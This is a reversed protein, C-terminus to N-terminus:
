GFYGRVTAYVGVAACAVPIITILVVTDLLELFRGVYPSAQRRSYVLGGAIVGAAVLALVLVAVLSRLAPPLMMSLGVTLTAAGILGSVLLPVRQRTALFMRTRMLLAATCLGALLSTAVGGSWGVMVLCIAAAISGGLLVGTLIDDARAVAAFTKPAPTRPQDELIDGATEPLEPVPIKGLRIAMLPAMPSLLVVVTLAVSAAETTELGALTIAAALTGVLGLVVGAAFVRTRDAVGGYGILAAGCLLVSGLLLSPAGLEALPEEGAIVLFGGTFAFPLGVGAVWVGAMSDAMARSLAIGTVVLIVALVLAVIGPVLWSPGSLLLVVLAVTLLSTGVTLAARRTTAPEWPKGHRRSGAAITHVVDDYDPEPWEAYRPVLHLLEGDRVEQAGLSLDTRLETGDTRRLSWGGHTEGADAFSEGAHQMLSPLLGALAVNSPLALDIRRDPTAVTVRALGTVPTTTM